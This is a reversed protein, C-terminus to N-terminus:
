ATWASQSSKFDVMPWNLGKDQAGINGLGACNYMGVPNNQVAKIYQLDVCLRTGSSAALAIRGDAMTIWTQQENATGVAACERVYLLAMDKWGSRPGADICLTTSALRISTSNSPATLLWTQTSSSTTQQVVLASGATRAKPVIVFKPDQTSTLYVTRPSDSQCLGTAALALLILTNPFM